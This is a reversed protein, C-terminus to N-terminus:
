PNGPTPGQAALRGNGSTSPLRFTGLHMAVPASEGERVLYSHDLELGNLVQTAGSAPWHIEVREISEARGLGIEQRLPSAGFSGGSGVNRYIEREGDETRVVVKTRAGIASRNSRGGELKLKLWHNDNGPNAFLQSRYHDAKLAGGVVFFVDQNGDNNIDGFAVGHGKQLQGFGGSTTVDQFRRGDQNRFMRAGALTEFNPNGAGAFFDLWGDNDLDGFNTGMTIMTKFLGAEKTVDSFTGDRNNHYLRPREGSSPLGLRDAVVDGVDQIDYPMVMIDPWGDNDFDWFWCAFSCYPETVGAERSVDTFKWPARPSADEGVPGDNRLLVNGARDLRTIYLGPRGTNDFDASVVGKVFGGIALHNEAACETFTGDGNNRFLECVNVDKGNSENGIFLDLWGDGNYDFWVATQTPHLRLLGAEETVDTFTGDGNNRLLSCPLHGDAGLWAGRLVLVDVFGDNNYDAQILNLGGTEGLLGAQATRDSFTGDGNNHFLHIQSDPGWGSVMLDLFGDNDFDDMVVGGALGDIDVGLAGAIDPFRKMEYDSKFVKPDIRWEAPVQGPYEALTMYAINLLWRARLDGPYRRLLRTLYTIAQRSGRQAKHVGGGQIPLMCSDGNHNSMCNETEGIRLCCIAEDDLLQVELTPSFPRHNATMADEYDSFEKLADDYRGASLLAEAYPLMTALAEDTGTVAQLKAHLREAIEDNHFFGSSLGMAHSGEALRAAMRRTSEPQPYDAEPGTSAPEPGCLDVRGGSVGARLGLGSCELILVCAGFMALAHYRRFPGNGECLTPSSLDPM